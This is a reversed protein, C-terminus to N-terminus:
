QRSVQLNDVLDVAAKQIFDAGPEGVIIGADCTNGEDVFTARLIDSHGVQGRNARVGDVANRRQMSLKQLLGNQVIEVLQPGVLEEVYGVSNSRSAPQSETIRLKRM